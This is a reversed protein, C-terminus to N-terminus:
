TVYLYLWVCNEPVRAKPALKLLLGHFVSLFWISRDKTWFWREVDAKCWGTWFGCISDLILRGATLASYRNSSESGSDTSIMNHVESPIWTKAFLRTRESTDGTKLPMNLRGIGGLNSRWKMDEVLRGQTWTCSSLLSSKRSRDYHSGRPAGNCVRWPKLAASFSGSLYPISLTMWRIPFAISSFSLSTLSSQTLTQAVIEM